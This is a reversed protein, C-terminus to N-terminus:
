EDEERFADAVDHWDVRWFSGVDSIMSRVWGNRDWEERSRPWEHLTEDLRDTIWEQLREAAAHTEVLPPPTADHAEYWLVTEADADAVLAVAHRYLPEDNSLHLHVAWTERNVWGNHEDPNLITM